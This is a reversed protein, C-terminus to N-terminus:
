QKIRKVAFKYIYQKKICTLVPHAESTKRVRGRGILMPRAIQGPSIVWM